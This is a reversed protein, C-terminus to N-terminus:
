RVLDVRQVRSSLRHFLAHYVSFVALLLGQGAEPVTSLYHEMADIEATRDDMLGAAALERCRAKWHTQLLRIEKLAPDSLFHATTRHAFVNRLNKIARLVRADTEEILGVLLSLQIRAGFSAAPARGDGNAGLFSAAEAAFDRFRGELLEALAADLVAGAVIVLERPPLERYASYIKEEGPFVDALWREIKWAM